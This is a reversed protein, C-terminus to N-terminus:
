ICPYLGDICCIGDGVVNDQNLAVSSTTEQVWNDKILGNEDFINKYHNAEGKMLDAADITGKEM